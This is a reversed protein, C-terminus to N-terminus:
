EQVDKGTLGKVFIFHGIALSQQFFTKVPQASVRKRTAKM